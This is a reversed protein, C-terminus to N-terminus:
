RPPQAIQTTSIFDGHGNWHHVQYVPTNQLRLPYCGKRLDPATSPMTSAPIDALKTLWARHAHGCFIRVINPYNSLVNSLAYVADRTEYQFPDPADAVDFPPHHMFLVTPQTTNQDLTERLANLRAKSYNGKFSNFGLSDLAILRLDHDEVCYHIFPDDIDIKKVNPFIEVLLDRNDRNGPIVYFPMKLDSLLSLLYRYEARTQNQALDGTHIVADPLKPLTNIDNIVRQVADARVTKAPDNSEPALIHTDSIQAIIM